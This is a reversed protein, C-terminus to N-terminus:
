RLGAEASTWRRQYRELRGNSFRGPFPNASASDWFPILVSDVSVDLEEAMIQRLGTWTGQGVELKNPFMSITNDPNIALWTDIQTQDPAVNPLKVVAAGAPASLASGISLGVVVAGSGKVFTKRSFEKDHMFGTM